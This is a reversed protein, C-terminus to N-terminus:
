SKKPNAFFARDLASFDKFFEYSFGEKELIKEIGNKQSSGIECLIPVNTKQSLAILARYFLLGDEGGFLAMAPERKVNEPIKEMEESTLYPPNSLILAPKEKLVTKIMEESLLDMKHAGARHSLDFRYLNKKTLELAHPSLDFFRCFLDSRKLLLSIGICGSGSCLDFVLSNEPAIKAGLEVLLETEPRPILVEPSVLFEEGCFFETGLYYQIPEGSLLSSLDSFIKKEIESSVEKEPNLMAENRDLGNKEFLASLLAKETFFRAGSEKKYETKVALSIEKITM